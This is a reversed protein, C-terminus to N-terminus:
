SNYGYMLAGENCNFNAYPNAARFLEPSHSTGLAGILATM